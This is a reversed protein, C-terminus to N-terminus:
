KSLSAAEKSRREERWAPGRRQLVFLLPSFLLMIAAVFSFCGGRGMALIMYEVVATAGAGLLCRTLNSAASVTSAQKPCQDVLMTQLINTTGTLTLGIILLLVLPAALPANQNVAWGYSFTAAIAVFVLPFAIQLRAREIPFDKLDDGRVLDLTMGANGALRRYNYDLVRGVVLAGLFTGVGFPRCLPDSLTGESHYPLRVPLM